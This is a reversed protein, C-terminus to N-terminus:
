VEVAAHPSHGVVPESGYGLANVAVTVTRGGGCLPHPLALKAAVHSHGCLWARVAGATDGAGTLVRSLLGPTAFAPALRTDGRYAPPTLDAHQEPLHHTLVVIRSAGGRVADAIAATLWAADRAHWANTDDTTAPRLRLPRLPPTGAAADANSDDDCPLAIYKYDGIADEVTGAAAPPVATWLPCGLFVVGSGPHAYVGRELVHVNPGAAAADATLADLLQAPTAPPDHARHKWHRPHARAGWADHNGRVVLVAEWRPAAWALLGRLLPSGPAGLDGVLALVPAAGPSVLREWPVAGPPTAANWTELHVDSVYTVRLPPLPASSSM